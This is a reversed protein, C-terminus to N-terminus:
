KSASAREPLLAAGIGRVSKLLSSLAESASNRPAKIPPADSLGDQTMLKIAALLRETSKEEMALFRFAQSLPVGDACRHLFEVTAMVKGFVTRLAIDGMTGPPIPGKSLIASGGSVSM